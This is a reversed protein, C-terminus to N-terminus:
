NMKTIGTYVSTDNLATSDSVIAKWKLALCQLGATDNFYNKVRTLELNDCLAKVQDIDFHSSNLTIKSSFPM